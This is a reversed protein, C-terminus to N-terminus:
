SHKIFHLSDQQFHVVNQSFKRTKKNEQKVLHKHGDNMRGNM